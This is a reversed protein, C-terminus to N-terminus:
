LFLVVLFRLESSLLNRAGNGLACHRLEGSSGSRTLAAAVRREEHRCAAHSCNSVTM